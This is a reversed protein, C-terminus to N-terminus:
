EALARRYVADILLRATEEDVLHPNVPRRLASMITRVRRVSMAPM